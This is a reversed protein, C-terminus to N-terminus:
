SREKRSAPQLHRRLEELRAADKLGPQVELSSSLDVAYAGADLADRATTPTLGGSAIVESWGPDQPLAGADFSRGTGGSRGAVQADLFLRDGRAPPLGDPRSGADIGHVQWIEVGPLRQRLVEIEERDLPQHAQVAVTGAKDALRVVDDISQERFVAVVEIGTADAMARAMEPTTCRPSDPALVAGLRWAGADRAAVADEVRTLGCVKFRGLARDAAAGRLDPEAMLSSGILFADVRGALRTVDGGSNIGSETVLIRDDPVTAALTETTALDVKLNGLDRNNIGIVEVDLDLARRLEEETHVEVLAEMSLRHCMELCAGATQDDLVSLMLLVADAGHVRSEAVQWPDLIFDKRLVPVEVAQSMTTLDDLSGGFYESETLVSVADALGRYANAVDDVTARPRLEGRSPSRRKLELVFRAGPQTLATTLSRRSPEAQALMSELSTSTMRAALREATASVIEGLVGPPTTPVVPIAPDAM